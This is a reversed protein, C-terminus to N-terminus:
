VRASRDDSITEESSADSDIVILDEQKGGHRSYDRRLNAMGLGGLGIGSPYNSLPSTSLPQLNNERFVGMTFRTENRPVFHSEQRDFDPYTVNLMDPHAILSVTSPPMPETLSVPSAVVAERLWHPLNGKAGVCTTPGNTSLLYGKAMSRSRSLISFEDEDYKERLFGFHSTRKTYSIPRQLHENGNSCTYAPQFLPGRWANGGRCADVNCFSLGPEDATNEKWIGTKPGLFYHYDLSSGQAISYKFQPVCIGSLLKSQEEEWREALDRAVRWSSFHLRPDRLMADWNDRGHRRVGIWLFDLEEESWMTSYPKCKDHFSSWENFARARSAISDHMLRHRLVSSLHSSSSQLAADRIFERTEIVSNLFPFASFCTNTACGATLPNEPLSLGLLLPSEQEPQNNKGGLQLIESAISSAAVPQTTVPRFIDSTKEESFLQLCQNKQTIEKSFLPSVKDDDKCSDGVELFEFADKHLRSAHTEVGEIRAASMEPPSLEHLVTANNRSTSDLSDWTTKPVALDPQKQSSLNLDVNCEVTGCSDTPIVSLDLYPLSRGLHPTETAKLDDSSLDQAEDRILAHTKGPKCLTVAESSSDRTDSSKRLHDTCLVEVDMASQANQGRVKGAQQLADSGTKEEDHLQEEEHMLIKTGAAASGAHAYRFDFIERSHKLDAEHDVSCNEPSTEEYSSTNTCVCNNLKTILSCSNEVPLSKRQINSEDMDKKRKNRRCFTVLPTTLKNQAASDGGLKDLKNRSFSDTDELNSTNLRPSSGDCESSSKREFAAASSSSKQRVFDATIVASNMVLQSVSRGGVNNDDVLAGANANSSSGVKKGSSKNGYADRQTPVEDLSSPFTKIPIQRTGSVEIHKKEKHPKHLCQLHYSQLCKGCHKLNGGVCCVFCVHCVASNRNYHESSRKDILHVQLDPPKSLSTDDPAVFLSNHCEHGQVPDTRSQRKRKYTLLVKSGSM